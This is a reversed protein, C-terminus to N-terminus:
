RRRVRPASENQSVINKSALVWEYFRKYKVSEFTDTNKTAENDFSINLTFQMVDEGEQNTKRQYNRIVAESLFPMSNLLDQIEASLLFVNGLFYATELTLTIQNQQISYNKINIKSFQSQLFKHQYSEDSFYERLHNPIDLIGFILTTKSTGIESVVEKVEDEWPKQELRIIEIADKHVFLREYNRKNESLSMIKEAEQVYMELQKSTRTNELIEDDQSLIEKEFRAVEQALNEDVGVLALIRNQSDNFMYFGGYVIMTFAVLSWIILRKQQKGTPPTAANETNVLLSEGSPTIKNEEDM